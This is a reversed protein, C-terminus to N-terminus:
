VGAYLFEDYPINDGFRARFINGNRNLPFGGSKEASMGTFHFGLSQPLYRIRYRLQRVQLCFQIDEFTGPSYVTDFGGIENWLSRRILLCAGTAANMDRVVNVMPHEPNWGNYIHYPRGQIDFVIGAHQVKGGPRAPDASNPFFILKPFTIGIDSNNDLQTVLIDLANKQLIVDSNLVLIYKSNGAAAGDNVTQPFGTNKVHRIVKAVNPMTKAYEYFANGNPHYDPSADDVLFIQFKVNETNENLASINAKVAEFNGYVPIVVDVDKRVGGFDVPGKNRKRSM